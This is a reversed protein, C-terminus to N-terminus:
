DTTTSPATTPVAHSAGPVAVWTEAVKSVAFDLVSGDSASRYREAPVQVQNGTKPIPGLRLLVGDELVPEGDSGHDIAEDFDDVFRVTADKEVNTVVAVQVALAMPKNNGLPAVFVVPTSDDMRNLDRAVSQVIASVVDSERSSDTGKKGSSCGVLALAVAVIVGVLTLRRRSRPVSSPALLPPSSLV